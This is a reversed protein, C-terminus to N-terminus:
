KGLEGNLFQQWVGRAIILSQRDTMLNDDTMTLLAAAIPDGKRATIFSSIPPLEIFEADDEDEDDEWDSM